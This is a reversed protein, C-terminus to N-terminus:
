QSKEQEYLIKLYLAYNILDNITDEIKEDTVALIGQRYFHKLRKFKDGIRVLVGLAGFERLNDLTDETGSYDHGKARRLEALGTIIDSIDKEMDDITYKMSDGEAKAQATFRRGLVEDTLGRRAM